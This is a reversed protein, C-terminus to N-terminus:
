STSESSGQTAGIRLVSSETGFDDRVTTALPDAMWHEGTADRVIFAYEHRGDPLPISVTWADSNDARALATQNKTWGNFDGVIWVEEASGNVLVFRVNQSNDPRSQMATRATERDLMGSFIASGGLIAILLSAAVALASLPSLRISYEKRWWPVSAEDDPNGPVLAEAHVASMVRAEFTDDLHVPARLPGAINEIAAHEADEQWSTM